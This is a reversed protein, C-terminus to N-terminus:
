DMAPVSWADMIGMRGPSMIAVAFAERVAPLTGLEMDILQSLLQGLRARIIFARPGREPFVPLGPRATALAPKRM